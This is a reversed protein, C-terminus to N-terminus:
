FALCAGTHVEDIGFEQHFLSLAPEHTCHSPLVRKVGMTKLTSITELTQHNIEKLHFGGVVAEVKTLGTVQRAYETMNCIGAHACGSVIVLGTVTKVVLGSDDMIFDEEGDELQYKTQKAEFSNERPVEGLFWVNDSLRVPLRSMNLVFRKGAEKHSLSLGLYDLSGKRFRKVFCGPHCILPKGDIYRLGNGHDWHGHSLVIYDIQELNIGMKAASRIYLDSAGTDFLIKKQGAEIMFSLGHEFGFGEMAKVESLVSIKLEIQHDAKV